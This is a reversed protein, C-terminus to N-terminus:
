DDEGPTFEHFCCPCTVIRKGTPTPTDDGVDHQNGDDDQEDLRFPEEDDPDKDLREPDNRRFLDDLEDAGFSMDAFLEPEIVHVDHLMDVLLGEIWGGSESVHNHEIIFAEAHADDVSAWGRQVPILWEGDEDLMIGDPVKDGHAKMAVLAATRGHGAVLRHTREDLIAADAYGHSKVSHILSPLDHSKPNRIAPVIDCLRVYEIRRPATPIRSAGIVM